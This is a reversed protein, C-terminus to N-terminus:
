VGIGAQLVVSGGTLPSNGPLNEIRAPKAPACPAQAHLSEDHAGGLLNQVKCIGPWDPLSCLKQVNSQLM